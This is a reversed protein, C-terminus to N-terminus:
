FGLVAMLKIGLQRQAEIPFPGEPKQPAPKRAQHALADEIFGPLFRALDDFIVDIDAARGDPEYSDLLADSPSLGLAEGLVRAQERILRLQEEVFPRVMAFDSAPRAKRWVTECRSCALSLASVLDAPVAVARLHNRRMEALNAAQWEDLTGSEAEAAVL